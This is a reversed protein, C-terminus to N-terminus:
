LYAKILRRLISANYFERWLKRPDKNMGTKKVLFDYATEGFFEYFRRNAKSTRLRQGFTSLWLSDYDIHEIISKAALYGSTMAYRMGFGFLFDQFGAAEGVYSKGGKVATKPISFSGFGVFKKPNKIEAGTADQFKEIAKELYAAGNVFDEFMATGLTAEGDCVLLYAYGKPAVADDLIVAATDKITTEFVTGFAFVRPKRPGTAIIDGEKSDARTNFMITVGLDLAQKKLAYDLTDPNRGRKILYFIPAASKIHASTSPGYLWGEYVPKNLFDTRISMAQLSGLVDEETSWNELGQFDNHFRMGVDAHKEYVTVKYHNKALHIAAALGAPGAGIIRIERSNEM